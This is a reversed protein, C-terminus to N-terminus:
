IAQFGGGTRQFEEKKAPLSSHFLVAMIVGVIVVFVPLNLMFVSTRSMNDELFTQGAAALSEILTSYIGRLYLAFIFVAIIIFIDLIIGFKPFRNRTLYASFFLGLIMGFISALGWWDANNAVSTAFVGFTQSNIEQLNVQGLSVNQDLANNINIVATGFVFFYVVVFLALFIGFFMFITVQGKKNFDFKRLDDWITKHKSILRTLKPKSLQKNDMGNEFRYQITEDLKKNFDNDIRALKNGKQSKIKDEKKIKKIKHLREKIENKLNEIEDNM